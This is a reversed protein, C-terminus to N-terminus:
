PYLLRFFVAANSLNIANTFRNAQTSGAVDVWNSSLGINSANTQTQLRWGIHDSPWSLTIQQGAREAVLAVPALSPPPLAVLLNVQGPINTEFSYNYQSPHSGLVPSNWHLGNGYTFLTYTGNTFGTGANINVTGALALNSRIIMTAASSGLTFNLQSTADLDLHNSITFTSNALSLIPAVDLANTNKLAGQANFFSLNNGLSNTSAGDLTVVASSPASNTFLIQSDFISISSVSSPVTISSDILKIATAYYIGFTKSGTLNVKNMALNTILMEPLGWILGAMRGSQATGFVNSITIDRYIPTKSTVSFSPATSVIGPTLNNIAGFTDNTYYCYILIPYQVNGMSLNYYGINRVTGGRDRDSKIRIGQDTNTFTCNIVTMNSVGGSTM